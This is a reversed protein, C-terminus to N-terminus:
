VPGAEHSRVLFARVLPVILDSRLFAQLHDLGELAVFEANPMAAAAAPMETAFLDDTGGYLLCPMGMDALGHELGLELTGALSAALAPGDNALWRERAEVPLPGHRREFGAVFAAIGGRLDAQWAVMEDKDAATRPFPNVGGLILSAVRDPHDQGLGFGVEAGMSYGWHHAREIGLDDLVAVVDGVQESLVYAAADDPKGSSGHGRADIMVLRFADDLADVYGTDRWRQASGIWGHSFVLPPGDGEVEYHISVGDRTVDPM